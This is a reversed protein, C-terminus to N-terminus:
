LNICTKSKNKVEDIPEVKKPPTEETSHYVIEEDDIFEDDDNTINSHICSSKSLLYLFLFLFTLLTKKNKLM